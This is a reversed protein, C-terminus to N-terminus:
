NFDTLKISRVSYDDFDMLYLYGENEGLFKLSGDIVKESVKGDGLVKMVRTESYYLNTLKNKGLTKQYCLYPTGDVVKIDDYFDYMGITVSTNTGSQEVSYEIRNEYPLKLTATINGNGDIKLINKRSIDLMYINSKEGVDYRFLSQVFQTEGDFETPKEIKDKLRIEKLIKGSVPEMMKVFIPTVGTGDFFTANFLYLKNDHLKILRPSIDLPLNKIFNGKLDYINIKKNMYGNVYLHEKFLCANLISPKIEGPGEGIVIPVAGKVKFDWDLIKYKKDGWDYTGFGQTGLRQIRNSRIKIIKESLDLKTEHKTKGHINLFTFGFVLLVCTMLIIKRNKITTM